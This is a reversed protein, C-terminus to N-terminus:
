APTAASPVIKGVTTDKRRSSLRGNTLSITLRAVQLMATSHHRPKGTASTEPCRSVLELIRCSSLTTAAARGRKISTRVHDASM